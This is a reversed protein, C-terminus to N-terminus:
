SCILNLKKPTSKSSALMPLTPRKELLSQGWAGDWESREIVLRQVTEDRQPSNEKTMSRCNLNGDDDICGFYGYGSDLRDLLIGLVGGFMDEDASKLMVEAIRHRLQLEAHTAALANEAKRQETIDIAVIRILDPIPADGEYDKGILQRCGYLSISVEGVDERKIQLNMSKTEPRNFFAKYQSLFVHRAANTLYDAFPRNILRGAQQGVMDAYTQNSRRIMGSRDLILYGVPANDFLDAYQNRTIELDRQASRLEENQIELEIQHVHLEHILSQFEEAKEIPLVITKSRAIMEAKRRISELDLKKEPSM